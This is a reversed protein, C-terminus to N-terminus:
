TGPPLWGDPIPGVRVVGDVGRICAARSAVSAGTPARMEVRGRSVLAFVTDSGRQGFDGPVHLQDIRSWRALALPTSSPWGCDAVQVPADAPIRVDGNSCGLVLLGAAVLWRAGVIVATRDLVSDADARGVERDLAPRRRAHVADAPTARGGM